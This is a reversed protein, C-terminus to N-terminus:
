ALHSACRSRGAVRSAARWNSTRWTRLRSSCCSSRCRALCHRSVRARNEPERNGPFCPCCGSRRDSPLSENTPCAMRKCAPGCRERRRLPRRQALPAPRWGCAGHAALLKTRSHKWADFQAATVGATLPIWVDVRDLDVGTFGPPAVGVITFRADGISLQRGLVQPDGSYERQWFPYSIVAVNPAPVGDDDATFLRGITARVGLTRFYSATVKMAPVSRADAGRGIALDTTTYAAVDAFAGATNILDFYMALSFEDQSDTVGRDTRLFRGLMVKGPDVVSAPPRLLLRDIVGFMTANAGIGLALVLVCAFAFAPRVRFTRLSFAVDQRLASLWAIWRDRALRHQDVRVLERAPHALTATSGIRM